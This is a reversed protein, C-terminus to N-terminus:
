VRFFGGDSEGARLTKSATNMPHAKPNISRPFAVPRSVRASHRQPDPINPLCECIRDFMDIISVHGEPMGFLQIYKKEIHTHDSAWDVCSLSNAHTLHKLSESADLLDKMQIAPFGEPDHDIAFTQVKRIFELDRKFM